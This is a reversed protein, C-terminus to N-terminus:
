TGVPRSKSPKSKKCRARRETTGDFKIVVKNGTKQNLVLYDAASRAAIQDIRARAEEITAASGVWLVTGTKENEFIDFPATMIQGGSRYDAATLLIEEEVAEAEPILLRRSKQKATRIDEEVIQKIADLPVQEFYTRNKQM